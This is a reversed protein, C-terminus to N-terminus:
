KSVLLKVGKYFELFWLIIPISLLLTLLWYYGKRLNILSRDFDSSDKKKKPRKWLRIVFLGLGGIIPFLFSGIFYYFKNGTSATLLDHYVWISVGIGIFAIAWILSSFESSLIAYAKDVKQFKTLEFTNEDTIEGALVPDEDGDVIELGPANVRAFYFGNIWKNDKYLIYLLGFSFLLFYVSLFLSSIYSIPVSSMIYSVGILGSSALLLLFLFHLHLTYSNSYSFSKKDSYFSPIIKGFDDKDLLEKEINGIFILNRQMWYNSDLIILIGWITTILMTVSIIFIAANDIILGSEQESFKIFGASFVLAAAYFSIFKWILEEKHRIQTWLGNRYQILYDERTSM